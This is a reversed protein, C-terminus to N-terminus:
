IEYNWKKLKKIANHDTLDIKVPVVSIYNNNLAWEDTDKALPELNAYEGTLWYYERNHPNTRKEFEEQWVGRTQRCVKIGNFNEKKVVPVNVNLCVYEPLGNELVNKIIVRAYKEAIEFDPSTSFDLVSFGISPIGNLCGEIAGGMTGSYFISISSNSGHNIGSLVLDPKKDFLQNLALKVCDVPTGNTSYVAKRNERKVEDLALPVKITIAHSMGSQGMEPAVVIVDGFESAINSLKQLGKANIGDDNTVLIVPKKKM